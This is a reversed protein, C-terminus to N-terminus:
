RTEVIWWDIEVLNDFSKGIEIGFSEGEVIEGVKAPVVEDAKKVTVFIKSEKSVEGTKVVVSKGDASVQEITCEGNDDATKGAPCIVATGITAAEQDVVKITLVGTEISEATLKGLISIENPKEPNIGLLTKLYSIDTSNQDIQALNLESNTLTQLEQIQSQLTQLLIEQNDIRAEQNNISTQQNVLSAQVVELQTDISTQLETLTTINQDTKLTLDSIDDNSDEIQIQQEQISKVIIPILMDTQIALMGNQQVSVLEPILPQIEQAIFGFQNKTGNIYDFQQPNLKTITELGYNLDKINEKMRRDSGYSWSSARLYGAGDDGIYFNTVNSSNTAYLGQTASTDGSGKVYLKASGASNSGIGVNGGSSQLTLSPFIGDDADTQLAFYKTGTQTNYSSMNLRPRRGTQEAVLQLLLRTEGSNQPSNVSLQSAPNTTGIGVNGDSTIRMREAVTGDLATSFSLFSDQTAATSTWDTETGMTIKGSDAVAPTSADYYFQNFLISTQTGDMDAANGSNTLELMDINTKAAGSQQIDLLASPSTTGLGLYG